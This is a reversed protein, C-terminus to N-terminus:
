QDGAQQRLSEKLQHRLWDLIEIKAHTRVDWNGDVQKEQLADRSTEILKLTALTADRAAEARAMDVAMEVTDRSYKRELAQTPRSRTRALIRRNMAGTLTEELIELDNVEIMFYEPQQAPQASGKMKDQTRNEM